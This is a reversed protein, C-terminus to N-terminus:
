IGDPEGMKGAIMTKVETLARFLLVKVNGESLDPLFSVERL